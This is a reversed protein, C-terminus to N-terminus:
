LETKDREIKHREEKTIIRNVVQELDKIDTLMRELRMVANVQQEEPKLREFARLEDRADKVREELGMNGALNVAAGAAMAAGGAAAGAAALAAPALFQAGPIFLTAGAVAGAAMITVGSAFAKNGLHSEEFDLIAQQLIRVNDTLRQHEKTAAERARYAEDIALQAESKIQTWTRVSSVNMPADPALVIFNRLASMGDWEGHTNGFANVIYQKPKLKLQQSVYDRSWLVKKARAAVQEVPKTIRPVQNRFQFNTPLMNVFLGIRTFDALAAEGLSEALVRLSLELDLTMSTGAVVILIVHPKVERIKMMIADLFETTQGESDSLGPSDYVKFRFQKPPADPELPDFWHFLKEHWSVQTTVRTMSDRADFMNEAREGEAQILENGLSSKGVRSPGLLFIVRDQVVVNKEHAHAVSFASILLLLPRVVDVVRWPM